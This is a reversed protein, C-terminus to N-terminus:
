AKADHHRDIAGLSLLAREVAELREGLGGAGRMNEEEAVQLQRIESAWTTLARVKDARTLDDCALLAQPTAFHASPDSTRPDARGTPADTM